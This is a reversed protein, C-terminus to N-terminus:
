RGVSSRRASRKVSNARPGDRGPFWRCFGPPPAPRRAHGTGAPLSAAAATATHDAVPEPRRHELARLAAELTVITRAREAALVEAAQRRTRELELAHELAQVRNRDAVEDSPDGAVPRQQAHGSPTPRQRALGAGLLDETPIRWQGPQGPVPSPEQRAGPSAGPACTVVSTSTSLGCVQAAEAITLTPPQEPHDGGHHRATVDQNRM